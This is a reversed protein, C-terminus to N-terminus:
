STTRSTAYVAQRSREETEVSEPRLVGLVEPLPCEAYEDVGDHTAADSQDRARMSLPQVSRDGIVNSNDVRRSLDLWHSISTRCAHDMPAM